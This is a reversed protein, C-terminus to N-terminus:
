WIKQGNLAFNMLSLFPSFTPNKEWFGSLIIVISIELKYKCNKVEFYTKNLIEWVKSLHLIQEFNVLSSGRLVWPSLLTMFTM